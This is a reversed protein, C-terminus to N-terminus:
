ERVFRNVFANEIWFDIVEDAEGHQKLVKAISHLYIFAFRLDLLAWSESDKYVALLKHLKKAYGFSVIKESIFKICRLNRTLAVPVKMIARDILFDVDEQYREVGNHIIGEYINEMARDVDAPQESMMLDINDAYQTRDLLLKEVVNRIPLLSKQRETKLGDIFKIMDSLYRVQISKMFSDKHLSKHAKDYLSVNKILNEKIIEFEDDTWTIKDYLLNLRIYMPETWGFEKDSLFGCHWINMSLFCGKIKDISEKDNKVLNFLQFLMVRDHPIDQVDTKHIAECISSILEESLFGENNLTDLLFLTNRDLVNPFLLTDNIKVEKQIHEILLNNVIIDSVVGNNMSYRSILQQFAWYINDPNRISGLAFKVNFVLEDSDKIDHLRRIFAKFVSEKFLEFWLEEDVAIYMTATVNLIGNKFSVPTEDKGIAHLSKILIDENFKQLKVNYAYDEGIRRQVDRETYQISYFFCPYPFYEYLNQFVIYWNAVDFMIYGPLSVYIGSDIIFQLIRLSKVYDGHNSGINWTSGIWGRRKPKEKKNRLSSMMFNLMDGHGDLGYRWYKETNYPQPWRRSIFNALIVEYLKESPNIEKEIIEDLIAQADKVLDEHIAMCMARNQLWYDKANWNCILEKSKSFDLNFLYRQIQEYIAWNEGVESMSDTSGHLTKEREVLQTWIPQKNLEQDEKHYNVYYSPIQGIDKVALAFLFAKDETLPEKSMLLDIFSEQPFIVKCFRVVKRADKIDQALQSLEEKKGLIGLGKEWLKRYDFVACKSESLAKDYTLVDHNDVFTPYAAILYCFFAELLVKNSFTNDNNKEYEINSENVVESDSNSLGLQEMIRQDRLRVVKIHNHLYYSKIYPEEEKESLDILYFKVQKDDQSGLINLLWDICNRFNPDTGSFGILCFVGQLMETNLITKFASHKEGYSNYDEQTIIYNTDNCGDFGSSDNQDERLSGHIKIIKCDASTNSLEKGRKIVTIPRKEKDISLELLNDYNTTFYNRFGVCQLLLQHLKLCDDDCKDIEKDKKFLHVGENGIKAYPIHEEIYADISEHMNNHEHVYQSALTLAGKEKILESVKIFYFENKCKSGKINNKKIYEEYANEIQSEYKKFVMDYLLGNWSVYHDSVNLSFGAGVLASMIGQKYDQRLQELATLEEYKQDQISM